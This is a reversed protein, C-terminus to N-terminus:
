GGPLLTPSSPLLNARRWSRSEEGDAARRPCRSPGEWPGCGTLGRWSTRGALSLADVLPGLVCRAYGQHPAAEWAFRAARARARAAVRTRMRTRVRAGARAAVMLRAAAAAAAASRPLLRGMWYSRGASFGRPRRGCRRLAARRWRLRLLAAFREHSPARSRRPGGRRRRRPRCRMRGSAPAAARAAAAARRGRRPARARANGCPRAGCRLGCGCRAAAEADPADPAARPTSSPAACPAPAALNALRAFLPLLWGLQEEPLWEALAPRAPAAGVGRWRVRRWAGDGAAEAGGGCACPM